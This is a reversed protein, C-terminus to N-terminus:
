SYCPGSVHLPLETFLTTLLGTFEGALSCLVIGLFSALGYFSSLWAIICLFVVREVGRVAISSASPHRALLLDPTLTLLPYLRAHVWFVLLFPLGRGFCCPSSTALWLLRIIYALAFSIFGGLRSLGVLSFGM